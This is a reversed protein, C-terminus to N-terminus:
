RGKRLSSALRIDDSEILHRRLEEVNKPNTRYFGDGFWGVVPITGFAPDIGVRRAMRWLMAPPAGHRRAEIVFYPSLVKAVALGAGPVFNIPADAGIRITAGPIRLASGLLRALADLREITEPRSRQPSLISVMTMADTSGLDSRM